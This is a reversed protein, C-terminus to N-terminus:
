IRKTAEEVIVKLEFGPSDDGRISANDLKKERAGYVKKIISNTEATLYYSKQVQSAIRDRDSQSRCM